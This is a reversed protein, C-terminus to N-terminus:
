GSQPQASYSRVNKLAADDTSNIDQDKISIGNSVIMTLPRNLCRITIDCPCGLNSALGTLQIVKWSKRRRTIHRMDVAVRLRYSFCGVIETAANRVLV